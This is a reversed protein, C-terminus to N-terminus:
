MINLGSMIDECTQANCICSLSKLVINPDGKKPFSDYPGGHPYTAGLVQTQLEIGLTMRPNRSTPARPPRPIYM